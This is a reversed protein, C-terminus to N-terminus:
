KEEDYFVPGVRRLTTTRSWRKMMPSWSRLITKTKLSYSSYGRSPVEKWQLHFLPLKLITHTGKKKPPRSIIKDLITTIITKAMIESRVETFYLGDKQYRVLKSISPPINKIEQM